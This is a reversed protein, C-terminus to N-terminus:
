QAKDFQIGAVASSAPRLRAVIVHTVDTGGNLNTYIVQPTRFLGWPIGWWGLFFTLITWPLSATAASEGAPIFQLTSNRRLTLFIMSIVYQYVILRGGRDIEALIEHQPRKLFEDAKM